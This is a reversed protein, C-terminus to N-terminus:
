EPGKILSEIIGRSGDKPTTLDILPRKVPQKVEKVSPTGVPIGAARRAAHAATAGGVQRQYEEISIGAAIAEKSRPDSTDKLPKGSKEAVEIADFEAQTLKYQGYDPGVTPFGYKELIDKRRTTPRQVAFYTKREAESFAPNRRAVAM